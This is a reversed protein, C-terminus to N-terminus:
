LRKGPGSCSAPCPLLALGTLGYGIGSTTTSPVVNIKLLAGMFADGLAHTVLVNVGVKPFHYDIAWTDTPGATVTQLGVEHDSPNGNHWANIWMGGILHFASFKNPGINLLYFRVRENQRVTITQPFQHGNFLYMTPQANHLIAEADWGYTGDPNRTKNLYLESQIIVMERDVPPLPSRTPRVIIAGFMGNHVHLYVPSGECHYAFVGPHQAVFSYSWTQGPPINRFENDVTALAAHIDVSHAETNNALNILTVQVTDGENVEITPGPITGNFTWATFVVDDSVRVPHEQVILTFHRVQPQVQLPPSPTGGGMSLGLQFSFVAAAGMAAVVILAILLYAPRIGKMTGKM